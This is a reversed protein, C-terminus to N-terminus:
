VSQTRILKHTPLYHSTFSGILLTLNQRINGLLNFIQDCQQRSSCFPSLKNLDDDDNQSLLKSLLLSAVATHGSKAFNRM